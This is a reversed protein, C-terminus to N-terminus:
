LCWQVSTRQLAQSTISMPKPTANSRERKQTETNLGSISYSSCSCGGRDWVLGQSGKSEARAHVNRMICFLISLIFGKVM